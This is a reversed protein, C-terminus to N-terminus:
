KTKTKPFQFWDRIYNKNYGLEKSKQISALSRLKVNGERLAKHMEKITARTKNISM